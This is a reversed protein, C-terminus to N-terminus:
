FVILPRGRMGGAEILRHAHAANEPTVRAAVDLFDFDGADAFASLQELGVTDQLRARVWVERVRIEREAEGKFSRVTALVGGDAICTFLEAGVLATDLVADVGRPAAASFREAVGSGRDVVVDAGRRLITDHEDPRGDAIVRLGAKKALVIVFAALFGAGGTIALTAGAPLSLQELAELATLGNMPLMAAQEMSLSAPVPVIADEPVVILESHSGGEPRRPMVIAMVSDGARLREVGPGVSEVTGAADMGAIYPPTFDAYAAAVLGSRTAIDTPNVAAAHVRIRVEGESAPRVDVNRVELVDPSGFKPIVVARM